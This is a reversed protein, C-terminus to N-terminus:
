DIGIVAQPYTPCVILEGGIEVASRNRWADGACDRVYQIGPIDMSQINVCRAKWRLKATLERSQEIDRGIAASRRRDLLQGLADGARSGVNRADGCAAWGPIDAVECRTRGPLCIEEQVRLGLRGTMVETHLVMTEDLDVAVGARAVAPNNLKACVGRLELNGFGLVILVLGSRQRVEDPPM